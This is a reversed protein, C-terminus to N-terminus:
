VALRAPFQKQDVVLVAQELLTARHLDVVKAV